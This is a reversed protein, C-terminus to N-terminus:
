KISYEFVSSREYTPTLYATDILKNVLVANSPKSNLINTECIHNKHTKECMTECEADSALGAYAIFNKLSSFGQKLYNYNYCYCMDCGEGGFISILESNALNTIKYGM